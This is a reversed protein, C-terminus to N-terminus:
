RGAGVLPLRDHRVYHADLLRLAISRISTSPFEIRLTQRKIPLQM